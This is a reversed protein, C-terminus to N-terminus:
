MSKKEVGNVDPKFFYRGKKRDSREKDWNSRRLDVIHKLVEKTNLQSM